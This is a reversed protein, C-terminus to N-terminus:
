TKELESIHYANAAKSEDSTLNIRNTLSNITDQGFSNIYPMLESLLLKKEEFSFLNDELYQKVSNVIKTSLTVPELEHKYNNYLYPLHYTDKDENHVLKFVNQSAVKNKLARFPEYYRSSFGIKSNTLDTM